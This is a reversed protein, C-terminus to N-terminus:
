ETEAPVKVFDMMDGINDTNVGQVITPVLTVGLGAKECNRIAQKKIELLPEGRLKEYIDDRTGDFQMFIVTAGADKLIKAYGEETALRRGNTNIQVYEFGKDKAM